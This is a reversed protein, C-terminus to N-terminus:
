RKSYIRVVAARTVDPWELFNMWGESGENAETFHKPGREM